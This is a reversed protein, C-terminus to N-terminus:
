FLLLIARLTLGTWIPFIPCKYKAFNSCYRINSRQQENPDTILEFKNSIQGSLVNDLSKTVLCHKIMDITALCIERKSVAKTNSKHAMPVLLRDVQLLSIWGSPDPTYM